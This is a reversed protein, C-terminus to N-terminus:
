SEDGMRKEYRVLEKMVSAEHMGLRVMFLKSFYESIKINLRHCLMRLRHRDGRTMELEVTMKVRDSEKEKKGM